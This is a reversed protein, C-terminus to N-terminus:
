TAMDCDERRMIVFTIDLVMAFCNNNIMFANMLNIVIAIKLTFPNVIDYEIITVIVFMHAFKIKLANSTYTTFSNTIDISVINVKITFNIDLNITFLIALMTSFEISFVVM